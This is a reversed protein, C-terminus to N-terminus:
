VWEGPYYWSTVPLIGLSLGPILARRAEQALEGRHCYIHSLKAVPAVPKGLYASHDILPYNRGRDFDELGRRTGKVLQAKTFWKSKELGHARAFVQTTRIYAAQQKRHQINRLKEPLSRKAEMDIALAKNAEEIGAYLERAANNM